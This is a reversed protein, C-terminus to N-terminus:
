QKRRKTPRERTASRRRQEKQIEQNAAQNVDIEPMDRLIRDAIRKTLEQEASFDSPMHKPKTKIKPEDKHAKDFKGMSATSKQAIAIATQLSAKPVKEQTNLSLTVPNSIAAQQRKKNLVEKKQQKQRSEKKKMQAMEFPDSAGAEQLQHPKDDLVWSDAVPDAARGRGYRPKYEGSADDYSLRSRKKQKQIGKDKAFKEWKTPPKPQPIPKERPIPTTPYPLEALPGADSKIAPLNFVKDFLGQVCREAQEQIYKSGRPQEQYDFVLLNGLDIELVPALSEDEEAEKQQFLARVDLIEESM